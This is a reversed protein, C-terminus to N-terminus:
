LKVTELAEIAKATSVMEVEIDGEEHEEEAGEKDASYREVVL